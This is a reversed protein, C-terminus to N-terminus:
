KYNDPWDNQFLVVDNPEVIDGMAAHAEHASKYWQIHNKDFGNEMLGQAIFPTASNKILVVRDAVQALHKGIKKHVEENKEGTEVLGPTIYVKRRNKYTSLLYIAEAVGESNGNYSDDIVLVGQTGEIPQLRHPLPGIARAGKQIQEETLGLYRGVAAGAELVGKAYRGLLGSELNSEKKSSVLAIKQTTVFTKYNDRILVNDENLVLLGKQNMHQALEFIAATTNEISGMRELHAENIGTIIATQPKVVTCIDQIDGQTYEGMEVVLVEISSDLRKLILSAIGLPTNINEPTKLVSYKQSLITAVAEKMTTKGYSGAIGVVELLPFQALHLKARKILAHKMYTDLPKIIIVALSIPLYSIFFLLLFLPSLAFSLGMIMGGSLTAILMMKQTWVLKKRLVKQPLSATWVTRLFRRVDYEELQLLYLHYYFYAFPNIKEM